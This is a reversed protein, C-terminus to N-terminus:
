GREQIAAHALLGALVLQPPACDTIDFFFGAKGRGPVQLDIRHIHRDARNVCSVGELVWGVRGTGAAVGADAPLPPRLQPGFAGNLHEYIAAIGTGLGPWTVVWPHEHDNRGDHVTITSVRQQRDLQHLRARARAVHYGLIASVQARYDQETFPAAQAPLVEAVAAAVAPNPSSKAFQALSAGEIDRLAPDAGHRVLLRVLDARGKAAARHLATYGAESPANPNAGARLLMLVLEDGPHGVAAHLPTWGHRSPADVDVTHRLLLEVMRVDAMECALNLPSFGPLQRLGGRGELADALLEVVAHHREGVAVSIPTKWEDAISQPDAGAKLLAQAAELHGGHAAYHLPRWNGTEVAAGRGLLLTVLAAKGVQAAVHLARQGGASEAEVSAGHDLLYPVADDPLETVMAHHWLVNGKEDRSNLDLAQLLASLSAEDKRGLAGMLMRVQWGQPLDPSGGAEQVLRLVRLSGSSIALATPTHGDGDPMGADAGRRLLLQVMEAQGTASAWHLPSRAKRDVTNVGAGAELLAIATDLLGRRAALILPTEGDPSCMLDVKAGRALLLQVHELKGAVQCARHLPTFQLGDVANADAGRDLLRRTCALSAAQLADPLARTGGFALTMTDEEGLVAWHLPTRGFGCRVDVRAGAAMLAALREPKHLLAALTLAFTDHSKMVMRAHVAVPFGPKGDTANLDIGGAGLMQQLEAPDDGDRAVAERLEKISVPTAAPASGPRMAGLLRQVFKM